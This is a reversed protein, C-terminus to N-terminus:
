RPAPSAVLRIAIKVRDGGPVLLLIKPRSMGFDSLSISGKGRIYLNTGTDTLRFSLPFARRTGHMELVGRGRLRWDKERRGPGADVSEGDPEVSTVRFDIDPYEEAELVDGYLMRRHEPRKSKVSASKISFGGSAGHFSKGSGLFLEGELVGFHGDYPILVGRFTFSVRSKRSDILYRYLVPAKVGSAPKAAPVGSATKETSAVSLAILFCMLAAEGAVLSKGIARM